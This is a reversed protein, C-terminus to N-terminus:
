PTKGEQFSLVEHWGCSVRSRSALIRGTSQKVEGEGQFM